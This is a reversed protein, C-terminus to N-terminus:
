GELYATTDRSADALDTLFPTLRDLAEKALEPDIAFCIRLYDEGEPGFASGPAVGVKAERLIRKATELSSEDLGHVKFFLYFTGEPSFVTVNDLATLGDVLVDRSAQCRAVQQVIFEDGEELAVICARQIFSAVGTTNYQCLRAFLQDMGGPFTIWGARWGTMCWNKSFTNTVLLKDDPECIQLFSSAPGEGDYVFHNYVEDAVIWLGKERCFDRLRRMDELPMRWGTPNSPSNIFVARTRETVRAFLKDLDLEINGDPYFDFAVPVNVGGVIEIMQRANPWAPTPMIVESGEDLIAQMAMTVANMGGITVCFRDSSVDVQWHRRHYDALAQRLEPLGQSYSYRTDDDTLADMAAQKIYEPTPLDGEGIWLRVVSADHRALDAVAVIQNDPMAQVRSSCSHSLNAPIADLM